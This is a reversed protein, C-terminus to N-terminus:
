WPEVEYVEFPVEWGVWRWRLAVSKKHAEDLYRGVYVATTDKYMTRGSYAGNMIALYEIADDDNKPVQTITIPLFERTSYFYTTQRPAPAIALPTKVPRLLEQLQEPNM